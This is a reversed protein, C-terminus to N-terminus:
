RAYQVINDGTSSSLWRLVRIQNAVGFGIESRNFVDRGVIPDNGM